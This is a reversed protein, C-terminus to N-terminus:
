KRWSVCEFMESDNRVWCINIWASSISEVISTNFWSLFWTEKDDHKQITRNSISNTQLCQCRQITLHQCLCFFLFVFFFLFISFFLNLGCFFFLFIIWRFVLFVLFVFFVLFLWFFLEGQKSGLNLPM